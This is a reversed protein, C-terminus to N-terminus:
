ALLSNPRLAPVRATRPKSILWKWNRAGIGGGLYRLKSTVGLNIGSDIKAIKLVQTEIGTNCKVHIKAEEEEEQFTIGM